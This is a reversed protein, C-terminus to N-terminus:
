GTALPQEAALAGRHPLDAEIARMRHYGPQADLAHICADPRAYGRTRMPARPACALTLVSALATAALLLGRLSRVGPNPSWSPDPDERSVAPAEGWLDRFCFWQHPRRRIAWEVERAISAVARRLDAARDASRGVRIPERVFVETELRGRRFCFIPVIEVNASRALVAPGLPLDLPRGFLHAGLARGGSRPRDGQTAVVDGRRLGMLLEGALRADDARVFHVRVRDGARSQILRRLFDQARPDPEEERVVHVSRGDREAPGFLATEWNGIHATVIVFGEPATAKRRWTEEGVVRLAPQRRGSLREYRESLCWALNWMTRYIRAQRQWLGCPGLVPVLNNAIARRIRRLCLFFFTTFLFISPGVAWRPLVAIGWRHFRYWFVGTVYFRGLLRRLVGGEPAQPLHDARRPASTV